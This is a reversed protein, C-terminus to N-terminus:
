ALVSWPRCLFVRVESSQNSFEKSGDIMRTATKQNVDDFAEVALGIQLGDAPQV